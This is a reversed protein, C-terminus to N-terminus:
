YRFDVKNIELKNILNIMDYISTNECLVSDDEVFMIYKTQLYPTNNIYNLITMFDWNQKSNGTQFTINARKSKPNKKSLLLCECM